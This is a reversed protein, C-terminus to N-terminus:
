PSESEPGTSMVRRLYFWRREGQGGGGPYSCGAFSWRYRWGLRRVTHWGFEISSRPPKVVYQENFLLLRTNAGGARSAAAASPEAQLADWALGALTGFIADQVVAVHDETWPAAAGGGGPTSDADGPINATSRAGGKGRPCPAPPTPEHASSPVGDKPFGYGNHKSRSGPRSPGPPAAVTSSRNSSRNSGGKDTPLHPRGRTGNRRSMYDDM